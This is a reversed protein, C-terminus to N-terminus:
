MGSALRDVISEQEGDGGETTSIPHGDDDVATFDSVDTVTETRAPDEASAAVAGTDGADTAAGDSEGAQAIRVRSISVPYKSLDPGFARASIVARTGSKEGDQWPRIEVHGSAIVADGKAISQQANEAMRGQLWVDYWSTNGDRWEGSVRDRVRRTTAMTLVLKAEEGDKPEFFTPRAGVNGAVTIMTERM